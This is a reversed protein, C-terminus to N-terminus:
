ERLVRHDAPGGAEARAELSGVAARVNAGCGAYAGRTETLDHSQTVALQLGGPRQLLAPRGTCCALPAAGQLLGAINFLSCAGKTLFCLVFLIYDSTVNSANPRERTDGKTFPVSLPLLPPTATQHRRGVEEDETSDASLTFLRSSVLLAAEGVWSLSDVALETGESANELEQQPTSPRLVWSMLVDHVFASSQTSHCHAMCWM